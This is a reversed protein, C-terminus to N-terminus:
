ATLNSLLFLQWFEPPFTGPDDFIRSWLAEIGDRFKERGFGTDSGAGLLANRSSLVDLAVQSDFEEEPRWNPVSSEERETSSAAM